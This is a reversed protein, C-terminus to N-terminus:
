ADKSTHHSGVTEGRQHDEDVTGEVGRAEPSLQQARRGAVVIWLEHFGLPNTQKEVHGIRLTIRLATRDSIQGDGGEVSRAGFQQLCTADRVPARQHQVVAAPDALNAVREAGDPSELLRTLQTEREATATVRDATDSAACEVAAVTVYWARPRPRSRGLATPVAASSDRRDDDAGNFRPREPECM